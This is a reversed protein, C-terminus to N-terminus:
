SCELARVFATPDDVHLAIRTAAKKRGLLGHIQVAENLTLVVNPRAGFTLRAVGPARGRPQCPEVSSIAARPVRASFFLSVRVLVRDPYVLVPRARFAHYAALLWLL